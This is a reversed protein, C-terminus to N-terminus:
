FWKKKTKVPWSTKGDILFMLRLDECWKSYIRVLRQIDPRLFKTQVFLIKKRAHSRMAFSKCKKSFVVKPPLHHFIEFIICFNQGVFMSRQIARYYHFVKDMQEVNRVILKEFICAKQMHWIDTAFLLHTELLCLCM